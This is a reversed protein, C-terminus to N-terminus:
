KVKTIKVISYVENDGFGTAPGFGDTARGNNVRHQLEFTKLSYISVYGSIISISGDHEGAGSVSGIYSNQGIILDTSDTINRIKIKSVCSLANASVFPASAEIFYEGKDLQFQNSVFSQIIGSYDDITNLTRTVYAGSTSTGGNTGSPKVDSLVAIRPQLLPVGTLAPSKSANIVLYGSSQSTNDSFYFSATTVASANFGADITLIGTKEDYSKLFVGGSFTSSLNVYDIDGSTTKGTSKYLGLSVGKLGKGIQIAVAAPNGSTSAANYARTFLQIGNVNMDADTQTPRTTTQTRTNTNIAYTFTIYTGVPANALTSLTYQASSAYSLSATDTSFTEPASVIQPSSATLSACPVSAFFSMGEGSGLINSAKTLPNSSTNSFATNDSFSVYTVSPEVLVSGGHGSSVANRFWVGISQISPIKDTASSTLGNPLGVRCEGTGAGSTFKGRIEVNEGVQRWQFQINTPTGFGQFTPTYDQWETINAIDAYVTTDSTLVVDDFLLIKGSNLVRTQFGVRISTCTTPITVNVRYIQTGGNTGALAVDSGSLLVAANTADYFVPTIDANNGNYQYPFYLTCTQGRFRLDVAQAPSVIYDNLSGAAQTYKYSASGALPAATEQALTGALVGGGLFTANNGTSWSAEDSGDLYFVTDPTAGTGAGTGGIVQNRATTANYILEISANPQLVIPGNTGTVIRNAATVTTDENNIIVPSTLSNIILTRRGSTSNAYGGISNLGVGTLRIVATTAGTLNVNDGTQANATNSSLNFAGSFTASGSSTIGTLGAIAGATTITGVGDKVLKGTTGDFRVIAENTSTAPGAVRTDIDTQLENLAGQVDTAALNGSPVSSIASADHADVTDNLHDNLATTTARTDIDTQLEALAANLNTSTLNGSAATTITNNAVVITKNTITAAETTGILTTTADPLTISRSGTSAAIITATTGTSGGGRSFVIRRTPDVEDAIAFSNDLVTKNTLTQTDTTGVVSGTVGHVGSSASTHNSLDTSTARTDIDTQLENLASQVDTAVLNGSPVNSIASADHADVTDNLHANFTTTTVRTDIDSQLENLAGQVDTAVLNGAPVNSIASADHADVTDNLHNNLATTTARTDIDTQLESLAANLETSTLNGSAATTITNSAAVITKGTLTQTQSDTVVERSSAGLTAKIKNDNSDVKIEGEIGELANADPAIIVGKRFRTKKLTM